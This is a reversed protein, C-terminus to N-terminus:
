LTIGRYLYFLFAVLLLWYHLTTLNKKGWQVSTSLTIVTISKLLISLLLIFLLTFVMWFATTYPTFDWIFLPTVFGFIYFWKLAIVMLRDIEGNKEGRVEHLHLFTHLEKQVVVEPSFLSKVAFVGATSMPITVKQHETEVRIHPYLGIFSGFTVRKIDSLSIVADAMKGIKTVLKKETVLLSSSFFELPPFIFSLLLPISVLLFPSFTIGRQYSTVVLLFEISLAAFFIHRKFHISV